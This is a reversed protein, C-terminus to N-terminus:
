EKFICCCRSILYMLLCMSLISFFIALTWSVWSSGGGNGGNDSDDGGDDGGDTSDIHTYNMYCSVLSSANCVLSPSLPSQSFNRTGLSAFPRVRYAYLADSIIDTDIYRRNNSGSSVTAHVGSSFAPTRHIEYGVQGDTNIDWAETLTNLPPTWSLAISINSANGSVFSVMSPGVTKQTSRYEMRDIWCRMRARQGLETDFQPCQADGLFSYSMLNTEMDSSIDSLCSSGQVSSLISIQGCAHTTTMVDRAKCDNTSACSVGSTVTVPDNPSPYVGTHAVFDGGNWNNNQSRCNNNSCLETFENGQHTHYLSLAHGLEHEFTNSILSNCVNNFKIQQVFMSPGPFPLYWFRGYSKMWNYNMGLGCYRPNLNMFVAEIQNTSTLDQVFNLADVVKEHTDEITRPLCYDIVLQFFCQKIEESCGYMCSGVTGNCTRSTGVYTCNDDKSILDTVSVDLMPCFDQYYYPDNTPYGPVCSSVCTRVEDWNMAACRDEHDDTTDDLYFNRTYLTDNVVIQVSTNVIRIKSDREYRESAQAILAEIQSTEILQTGNTNAFTSPRMRLQVVPLNELESTYADTVEQLYCESSGGWPGAGICSYTSFSEPARSDTKFEPHVPMGNLYRRRAEPDNDLRYRYMKEFDDMFCRPRKVEENELDRELDRFRLPSSTEQSKKDSLPYHHIQHFQKSPPRNVSQFGLTIGLTFFTITGLLFTDDYIM